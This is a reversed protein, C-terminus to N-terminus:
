NPRGKSKEVKDLLEFLLIKWYEPSHKLIIDGFKEHFTKVHDFHKKM